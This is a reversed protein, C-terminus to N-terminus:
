ERQKRGRMCALGFCGALRRLVPLEVEEHTIPVRIRHISRRLAHRAVMDRDGEVAAHDALVVLLIVPQVAFTEAEVIRRVVLPVLAPHGITTVQQQQVAV